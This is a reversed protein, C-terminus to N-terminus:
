YKAFYKDESALFQM